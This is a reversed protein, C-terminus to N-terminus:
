GGRKAGGWGSEGEGTIAVREKRPKPWFPPRRDRAYARHNVESATVLERFSKWGMTSAWALRVIRFGPAYAPSINM